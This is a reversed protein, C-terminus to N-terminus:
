GALYAAARSAVDLPLRTWVGFLVTAGLIIWTPVLMGLPAEARAERNTEPPARFYFVEIVRWVYVVALLSSLLALVAVSWHDSSLAANILYWKSVFGATLPVGILNLGGLVFAATTWPMRKGLGSMADLDTSGIKLAVCGIAMFLGGKMLAHNFMHVIGATLGDSSALSVALVLYGIQAVSSYALLRKVDDQFIAVTSAIFIAVLSLPMFWADLEMANFVFNIGYVTYIIRVLLYFSVKTATAALFATVMNPAYAYASPLWVHLPFLAMKISIGVTIFAFSAIVTRTQNARMAEGHVDVPQQLRDALDVMNLTGTMMYMLGIGILLLTSGITGMLLYRFAATLARRSKGMAILVYTSLSSIELFVFVNFIDGTAAIGLLGTVCLLFAAYFLYRKEEPVERALSRPAYHVVATAVIAVILLAMSGLADIRYEIGIPPDWGGLAYSVVDQQAVQVALGIAIALVIWCVLAAFVAVLAPRKLLVCIPASLLPIVVQLAPLHDSIM